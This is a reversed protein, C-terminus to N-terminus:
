AAEMAEPDYALAREFREFFEQMAEAPVRDEGRRDREDGVRAAHRRAVRIPNIPFAFLCM